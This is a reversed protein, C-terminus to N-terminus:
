MHNMAYQGNFYLLAYAESSLHKGNQAQVDSLFAGLTNKATKPDSSVKSLATNLKALLSNAIGENDIWGQTRSQNVLTILNQISSAANFTAPPDVPGITQLHVANVFKNPYQAKLNNYVRNFSSQVEETDNDPSPFHFKARRKGNFWSDVISPIGKSQFSFGKVTQNAPIGANASGIRTWSWAGKGQYETSYWESQPAPSTASSVAASHKVSFTDIPQAAEALNTVDFTYTYTGTTANFSVSSHVAPKVKSTSDLITQQKGNEPNTWEFVLWDNKSDYYGNVSENASWATSVISPFMSALIFASIKITTKM